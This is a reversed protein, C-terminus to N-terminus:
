LYSLWWDQRRQKVKGFWRCLPYLLLVIGIWFGYVAPLGFGWGAPRAMPPLGGALWAASGNGALAITVAVLHILYIHAMYYFFPVRGFSIFFQAMRGKAQDFAALALLAPGLTMGLFLLSPPYKECNVFSLLSALWGDQPAWPAPDGYLDIARLAVFLGVVATGIRWLARRRLVPALLLLPGLLYGALIVAVWPILPYMALVKIDPRPQFFGPQHLLLWVVRYRGWADANIGDLLNHGFILLGAVIILAKRPLFIMGALAVMSWGIVWIVQLLFFDPRVSFSWGIKVLTLEMLVLWLGRTVLFRSVQAVSRGRSGYLSAGAGALFVFTPACYNTIWRTLFLAPQHVDRLMGTGGSLYDRTHDLAMIVMVLGRLLDIADLRSRFTATPNISTGVRDSELGPEAQVVPKANV